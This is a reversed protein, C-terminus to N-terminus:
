RDFTTVQLTSAVVANKSLPQGNFRITNLDFVQIILLGDPPPSTASSSSSPISEKLSTEEVTTTAACAHAYDVLLAVNTTRVYPHIITVTMDLISKKSGLLEMSEENTIHYLSVIGIKGHRDMAVFSRETPNSQTTIGPTLDASSAPEVVIVDCVM